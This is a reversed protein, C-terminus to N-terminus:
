SKYMSNLDNKSDMQVGAASVMFETSNLGDNYPNIEVSFLDSNAEDGSDRDGMESFISDPKTDYLIALVYIAENDYMMRVETQQSPVGGNVPSQQIFDTIITAQDWVKDDSIADIKPPVDTKVITFKKRNEASVFASFLMLCLVLFLQKKM